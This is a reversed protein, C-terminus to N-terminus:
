LKDLTAPTTPHEVQAVEDLVDESLGELYENILVAENWHLDQALLQFEITFDNM